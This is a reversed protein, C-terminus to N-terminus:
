MKFGTKEEFAASFQPLVVKQAYEMRNEPSLGFKDNTIRDIMFGYTEEPSVINFKDDPMALFLSNYLNGTMYFTVRDTLAGIGVGYRNKYDKTSEAYSDARKQGDIDIGESLQKRELDVLSAANTDVIAIVEQRASFAQLKVIINEANTFDM